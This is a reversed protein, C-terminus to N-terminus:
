AGGVRLVEEATLTEWAGDSKCRVRKGTIQYLFDVHIVEVAKMVTDSIAWSDSGFLLIEQIVARYFM